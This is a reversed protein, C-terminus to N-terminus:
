VGFHHTTRRLILLIQEFVQIACLRPDVEAAVCTHWTRDIDDCQFSANFVLIDRGAADTGRACSFRCFSAIIDLLSFAVTDDGSKARDLMKDFDL